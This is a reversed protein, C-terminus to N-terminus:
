AMWGGEEVVGGGQQCWNSESESHFTKVCPHMVPPVTTPVSQACSFNFNSIVACQYSHQTCKHLILISIYASTM